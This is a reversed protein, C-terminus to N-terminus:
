FLSRLKIRHHPALEDEENRRTSVASNLEEEQLYDQNWRTVSM